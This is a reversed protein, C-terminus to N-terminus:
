HGSPCVRREATVDARDIRERQRQGTGHFQDHVVHRPLEVGPAMGASVTREAPGDEAASM